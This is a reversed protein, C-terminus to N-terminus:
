AEEAAAATTTTPRLADVFENVKVLVKKPKVFLLEQLMGYVCVCVCSVIYLKHSKYPLKGRYGDDDDDDYLGTSYDRKEKPKNKKYSLIERV